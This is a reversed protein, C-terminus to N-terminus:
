RGVGSCDQRCAADGVHEIHPHVAVHGGSQSQPALGMRIREELRGALEPYFRSIRYHYFIGEASNLGTPGSSETQNDADIAVSVRLCQFSRSRVDHYGIEGLQNSATSIQPRPNSTPIRVEFRKVMAGGHPDYLLEGWGIIAGVRPDDLDSSGIRLRDTKVLCDQSEAVSVDAHPSTEFLTLRAVLRAYEHVSEVLGPRDVVRLRGVSICRGTLRNEKCRVRGVHRNMDVVVLEFQATRVQGATQIKAFADDGRRRDPGFQGGLPRAQDRQGPSVQQGDPDSRFAVSAGAAVTTLPQRLRCSM